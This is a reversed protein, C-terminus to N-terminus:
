QQAQQQENASRERRGLESEVGAQGRNLEQQGLGASFQGAQTQRGIRENELQAAEQYLPLLMGAQARAMANGAATSRGLGMTNFQDQIGPLVNMNFDQQAAQVMPNNRILSGTVDQGAFQQGPDYGHQTSWQVGPSQWFGLAGQLRNPDGFSNAMQQQGTPGGTFGIGPQYHSGFPGAVQTAAPPPIPNSQGSGGSGGTGGGGGGGNTGGGGSGAAQSDSGGGFAGQGDGGQNTAKPKTTLKPPTMGQDVSM